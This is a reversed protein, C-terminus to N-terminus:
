KMRVNALGNADIWAVRNIPKLADATAGGDEILRAM